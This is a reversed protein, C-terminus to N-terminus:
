NRVAFAVLPLLAALVAGVGLGTRVTAARQEGRILRRDAAATSQDPSYNLAALAKRARAVDVGADALSTRLRSADGGQRELRLLERLQAARLGAYDFRAPATEELPSRSFWSALHPLV